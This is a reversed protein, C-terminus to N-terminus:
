SKDQEDGGIECHRSASFRFWSGGSSEVLILSTLEFELGTEEKVQLISGIIANHAIYATARFLHYSFFVAMWRGRLQRLFIKGPNWKGM